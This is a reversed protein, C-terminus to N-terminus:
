VGRCFARRAAAAGSGASPQNMSSYRVNRRASRISTICYAGLVLAMISAAIPANISRPQSRSLKQGLSPKKSTGTTM